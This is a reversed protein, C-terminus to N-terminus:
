RETPGAQYGPRELALEYLQRAESALPALASALRATAQVLGRDSDNQMLQLLDEVATMRRLAAERLHAVPALANIFLVEEGCQGTLPVPLFERM